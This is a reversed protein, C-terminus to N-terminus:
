DSGKKKEPKPETPMLGCERLTKRGEETQLLNVDVLVNPKEPASNPPVEGLKGQKGVAGCREAADASESALQRMKKIATIKGMELVLCIKDYSVGMERLEKVAQPKLVEIKQLLIDREMRLKAVQAWAPENM